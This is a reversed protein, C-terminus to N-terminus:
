SGFLAEIDRRGHFVRLILVDSQDVRYFIVYDSVAFTRIGPRLDQDRRRGLYPHVSLLLFRDVISDIVRDAIDFDCSERAVYNWIDDLDAEAELSLRHAM